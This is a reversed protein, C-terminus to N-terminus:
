RTAQWDKAPVAPAVLDDAAVSAERMSGWFITGSKRTPPPIILAVVKGHNTVEVLKEAAAVERLVRTCTAKFKSIPMRVRTMARLIFHGIRITLECLGSNKL